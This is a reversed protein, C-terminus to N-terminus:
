EIRAEGDNYILHFLGSEAKGRHQHGARQSGLFVARRVAHFEYGNVAVRLEFHRVPAPRASGQHQKRPEAVCSVDEILKRRLECTLVV